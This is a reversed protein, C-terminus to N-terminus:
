VDDTRLSPQKTGSIVLPRILFYWAAPKTLIVFNTCRRWNATTDAKLRDSSLGAFTFGMYLLHVSQSQDIPLPTYCALDDLTLLPLPLGKPSYGTATLASNISNNVISLPQGIALLMVIAYAMDRPHHHMYKVLANSCSNADSYSYARIHDDISHWFLQCCCFVGITFGPM